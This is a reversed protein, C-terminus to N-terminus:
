KKRILSRRYNPIVINSYDPIYITDEKYEEQNEELSNTESEFFEQEQEQYPQQYPEQYPEQYPQEYTEQYTEQYPQQYTEQYQDEYNEVQYPEQYPQQYPQQYLNCYKNVSVKWFWPNDYVIKIDKGSILRQRIEIVKKDNYWKYFHIFVRNYNEGRNSKRKLIDIRKIKGLKLQYFVNRIKNETINSFVYPICLSPQEIPIYQLNM